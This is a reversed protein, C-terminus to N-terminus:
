SGGILPWPFLHNPPITESTSFQYNRKLVELIRDISFSAPKISLNVQECDEVKYEKQAMAYLTMSHNSDDFM